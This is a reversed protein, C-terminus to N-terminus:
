QLLAHGEFVEELVNRAQGLIFVAGVLRAGRPVVGRYFAQLGGQQWLTRAVSLSSRANKGVTQAEGQMVTKVTDLPQTGYVTVLGALISGIASATAKQSMTATQADGFVKPSWGHLKHTLVPGLALYSACWVSERLATVELGRFLRPVGCQASVESVTKMFSKGSNQQLTMVLEAPSSLTSSCCGAIAGCAIKAADSPEAGDGALLKGNIAFQVASIPAISVLSVGVGRYLVPVSWTIPRGQQIANKMAVTPQQLLVEIMGALSGVTANQVGNLRQARESM